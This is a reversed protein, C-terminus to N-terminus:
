GGDLIVGEFLFYKNDNEWLDKELKFYKNLLKRKEDREKPPLVKVWFESMEISYWGIRVEGKDIEAGFEQRFWGEIARHYPHGIPSPLLIILERNGKVLNRVEDKSGLIEIGFDECLKKAEAMRKEDVREDVNEPSSFYVYRVLRNRVLRYCGILIDDNHPSIVLFGKDIKKEM